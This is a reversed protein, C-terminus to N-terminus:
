VLRQLLLDVLIKIEDETFFTGDPRPTEAVNYNDFGLLTMYLSLTLMRSSIDTRFEGREQGRRIEGEIIATFDRDLRSQIETLEPLGDSLEVKYLVIKIYPNDANKKGLDVELFSKLTEYASDYHTYSTYIDRYFAEYRRLIEELIDKKSNFNWYFAGRTLGVRKVIDELTTHSYGKEIFTDIASSIILERTEASNHQRAM